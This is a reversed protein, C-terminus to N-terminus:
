IRFSPPGEREWRQGQQKGKKGEGKMEM